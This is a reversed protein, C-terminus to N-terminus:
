KEQFEVGPYIQFPLGQFFYVTLSFTPLFASKQYFKSHRIGLNDGYSTNSHSTGTIDTALSSVEAIPDAVRVVYGLTAPIGVQPAHAREHFTNM